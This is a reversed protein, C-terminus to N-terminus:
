ASQGKQIDLYLCLHELPSICELLLHFWYCSNQHPLSIFLGINRHRHLSTGVWLKFSLEDLHGVHNKLFPTPSHIARCMSSKCLTWTQNGASMHSSEAAQFEPKLLNRPESAEKRWLYRYDLACVWM